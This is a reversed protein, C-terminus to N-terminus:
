PNKELTAKIRAAFASYTFPKQLFGAIEKGAFREAISQESFGSCLIM